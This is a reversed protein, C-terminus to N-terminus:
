LGFFLPESPFHTTEMIRAKELPEGILRLTLVVRESGAEHRLRRGCTAVAERSKKASYGEAFIVGVVM